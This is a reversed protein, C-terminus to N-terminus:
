EDSEDLLQSHLTTIWRAVVEEDSIGIIGNQRLYQIFADNWDMDLKLGKKADEVDGIISIWPESSHKYKRREFWRVFREPISKMYKFM